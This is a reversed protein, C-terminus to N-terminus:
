KGFSVWCFYSILELWLGIVHALPEACASCFARWGRSSRGVDWLVDYLAAVVPQRAKENIDIPCAIPMQQVVRRAGNPTM